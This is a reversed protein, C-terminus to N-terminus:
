RADKEELKVIFKDGDGPIHCSFNYRSERIHLDNFVEEDSDPDDDRATELAVLRKQEYFKAASEMDLFVDVSDYVTTQAIRENHLVVVHIYTVVYVKM